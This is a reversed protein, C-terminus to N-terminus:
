FISPSNWASREAIATRMSAGSAPSLGGSLRKGTSGSLRREDGEQTVGLGFWGQRRNLYPLLAFGRTYHPWRQSSLAVCPHSGLARRRSYPLSARLAGLAEQM